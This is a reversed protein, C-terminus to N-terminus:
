ITVRASTALVVSFQLALVTRLLVKFHTDFTKQAVQAGSKSYSPLVNHAQAMGDGIGSIYNNPDNIALQRAGHYWKRQARYFTSHLIRFERLESLLNKNNGAKEALMDLYSCTHCKTQVAVFKQIKVNPFSERWVKCFKEYKLPKPSDPIARIEAAYKEWLLKKTISAQRLHRQQFRNPQEEAGTEFYLELWAICEDRATMMAFNSKSEPMSLTCKENENLEIGFRNKMKSEFAISEKRSGIVSTHLPQHSYNRAKIDAVRRDRTRASIDYFAYFGPECCKVQLSPRGVHYDYEFKNLNLTEKIITSQIRDRVYKRRENIDTISAVFNMEEDLRRIDTEVKTQDRGRGEARGCEFCRCDNSQDIRREVGESKARSHIEAKLSYRKRCVLCCGESTSVNECDCFSCANKKFKKHTSDTAHDRSRKHVPNIKECVEDDSLGNTPFSVSRLSSKSLTSVSSSTTSLRGTSSSMSTSSSTASVTKASMLSPFSDATISFAFTGSIPIEFGSSCDSLDVNSAQLGPHLSSYLESPLDTAKIVNNENLLSKLDRVSGKPDVSFKANINRIKHLSHVNFQETRMHRRNAIAAADELSGSTSKMDALMQDMATKLAFTVPAFSGNDSNRQFFNSPIDLRNLTKSNYCVFDNRKLFEKDEDIEMCSTARIGSLGSIGIVVIRGTFFRPRFM